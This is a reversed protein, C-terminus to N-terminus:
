GSVAGSDKKETTNGGGAAGGGGSVNNSSAGKSNGTVVGSFTFGKGTGAGNPSVCSVRPLGPGRKYSPTDPDVTANVMVTLFTWYNEVMSDWYGRLDETSNYFEGKDDMSGFPSVTLNLSDRVYYNESAQKELATICADSLFGKCSGDDALPKQTPNNFRTKNHRSPHGFTWMCMGWDPSTNVTRTGDSQLKLLSDPAKIKVSYGIMAENRNTTDAQRWNPHSLDLATLSFTWGDILNGPFPKSVDYGPIKFVGTANSADIASLLATNNADFPGVRENFPSGYGSFGRYYWASASTPLLTAVALLQMLR